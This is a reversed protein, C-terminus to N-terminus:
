KGGAIAPLIMITDQEKLPTELGQQSRIDEDNVYINVFSRLQNEETFLHKKLAPYEQFFAEFAESVTNASVTISTEGDTFHKLASPINIAIKSM